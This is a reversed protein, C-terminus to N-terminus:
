RFWSEAGRQMMAAGALGTLASVFAPAAGRRKWEEHIAHFGLYFIWGATIGLPYVIWAAGLRPALSLGIGAGIITCGEALICGALAHMRSGVAARVIGGLAIGEPIKHLTVALPVALNLGLSLGHRAATQAGAVQALAMSWGDLFSHIAAAALLPAAFGHLESACSSHDHSHACTPCVPYMYQDVVILLGYGGGFLLLSVPWGAEVALEPLLGFLAVGLLVGASFPLAAQSLSRSPSTKKAGHREIGTLRVGVAAAAVGVATALAPAVM